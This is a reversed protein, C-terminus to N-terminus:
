IGICQLRDEHICKGAIIQLCKGIQGLNDATQVLGSLNAPLPNGRMLCGTCNGRLQFQLYNCLLETHLM